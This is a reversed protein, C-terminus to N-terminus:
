NLKFDNTVFKLFLPITVLLASFSMGAILLRLDFFDIAQLVVVIFCVTVLHASEALITISVYYPKITKVFMEKVSSFFGFALIYPLYKASSVYNEGFVLSVLYEGSIVAILTSVIFIFTMIALPKFAEEKDGGCKAFQIFVIDQSAKSYFQTLMAPIASAVVYIGIIKPTLLTFVLIKDLNKTIVSLIFSLHQKLNGILWDMRFIFLSKLLYKIKILRTRKLCITIYITSIIESFLSILIVTKATVAETFFLILLIIFYMLGYITRELAVYKAKSNYLLISMIITRVYYFFFFILLYIYFDTAIEIDFFDIKDKFLFGFIAVFTTLPIAAGLVHELSKKKCSNIVFYDSAAFTFFLIILQAFLLAKAIDGRIEPVVARALVIGAFVTLINGLLSGAVSFVWARM